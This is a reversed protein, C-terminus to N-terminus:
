LMDYVDQCFQLGTKSVLWADQYLYGMLICIGQRIASMKQVNVLGSASMLLRDSQKGGVGAFKYNAVGGGCDRRQRQLSPYIM